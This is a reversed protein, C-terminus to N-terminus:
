QTRPFWQWCPGRGAGRLPHIKPSRGPALLNRLPIVLAASVPPAQSSSLVRRGQLPGMPLWREVSHALLAYSCAFTNRHTVVHTHACLCVNKQPKVTCSAFAHTLCTLPYWGYHTSTCIQFERYCAFAFDTVDICAILWTTARSSRGTKNKSSLCCPIRM